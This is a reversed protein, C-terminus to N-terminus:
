YYVARKYSTTNTKGATNGGTTRPKNNTPKSAVKPPVKTINAAPKTTTDIPRFGAIENRIRKIEALYHEHENNSVTSFDSQPVSTFLAKDMVSFVPTSPNYHCRVFNRLLSLIFIGCM